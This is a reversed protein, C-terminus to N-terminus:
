EHKSEGEALDSKIGKMFDMYSTYSPATGAKLYDSLYVDSKKIDNRKLKDALNFISIKGYNNKHTIFISDNRNLCDILESYHTSFVLTANHKNVIPDSFLQLMGQAISKNLHIEIEDIFLYGGFKLVTAVYNFLSIAKITGSSLINRLETGKIEYTKENTAFKVLYTTINDGANRKIFEIGPDLYKLLYQPFSSEGDDTEWLGLDLFYNYNTLRFSNNIFILQKKDVISKFISVDDILYEKQEEKLATRRIYETFVGDFIHKRNISASILKRSIVEEQIMWKDQLSNNDKNITTEIKYIYNEDCSYMGFYLGSKFLGTVLDKDLSNLGDLKLYINFFAAMTKLVVTKGSANIGTIAILDQSYVRNFLRRIGEDNKGPVTNISTLFQLEFDDELLPANKVFIKLVKVSDNM